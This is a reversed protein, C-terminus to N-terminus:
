ALPEGWGTWGVEEEVEPGKLGMRRVPHVGQRSEESRRRAGFSERGM